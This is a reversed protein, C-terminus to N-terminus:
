NILEGVIIEEDSHAFESELIKINTGNLRDFIFGEM